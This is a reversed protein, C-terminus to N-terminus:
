RALRALLMVKQSITSSLETSLTEIDSVTDLVRADSSREACLAATKAVLSLLETCYGLYAHLEVRSLQRPQDQPPSESGPRIWQTGKTVQHMDVVHAMSRLEHLLALLGARERREPVAWLFVVAIAVFVVNNITSEVLPIWTILDGPTDALTRRLALALVGLMVLLALVAGTHAVVRTRAVRRHTARTQQSARDVLDVLSGAVRALGHDAFQASIRDRLDTVAALVRAGDLHHSATTGGPRPPGDRVGENQRDNVRDSYSSPAVWWGTTQPPYQLNVSM